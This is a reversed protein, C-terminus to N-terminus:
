HVARRMVWTVVGDVVICLMWPGGSVCRDCVITAVIGGRDAVYDAAGATREVTPENHGVVYSKVEVLEGYNM